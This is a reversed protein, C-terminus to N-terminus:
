YIDVVQDIFTYPYYTLAEGCDPCSLNTGVENLLLANSFAAEHSIAQLIDEKHIYDCDANCCYARVKYTAKL